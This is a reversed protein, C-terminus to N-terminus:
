RFKLSFQHCKQTLSFLAFQSFLSASLLSVQITAGGRFYSHEWNRGKGAGGEMKLGAGEGSQLARDLSHLEEQGQWISVQLGNQEGKNNEIGKEKRGKKEELSKKEGQM